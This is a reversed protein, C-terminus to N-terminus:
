SDSGTARMKVVQDAIELVRPDHSAAIVTHRGALSRLAALVTERSQMDLHATPEDLLFVAGGKFVARTLALRRRQGGSLADGGEGVPAHWGRPWATLDKDLGTLAAAQDLRAQVDSSLNAGERMLVNDLITGQFFFPEQPVWSVHEMWAAQNVEGLDTENVLVRGEDPRLSQLLIRLLTTKGAGSSGALIALSGALIEASVGHVAKQDPSHSFSINDLRLAISQWHPHLTGSEVQMPSEALGAVIGQAAAQASLRAHYHTGLTRLPLYFEPALLLVFFGTQFTMSGSLLKFGILVAALAVSVTALFELVLASLFAVRLVSVTTQRYNDTIRAIVEAERRTANFLKLTTLGQLSDLFRASLTALRRWQRQNLRGARSGILVMFLPIFPATFLLILASVMDLPFVFALIASPILAAQAAQPLFRAYYAELGEVADVMQHALDGPPRHRLRSPGAAMLRDYLHMRVAAKVRAAARFGFQEAAWVLAARAVMLAPLALILSFVDNLGQGEFIVGHVIQALMGAQIVLLIGASLGLAVALSLLHAAPGAQELLWNKASFSPPKNLGGESATPPVHPM